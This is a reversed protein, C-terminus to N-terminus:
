QFFSHVVKRRQRQGESEACEAHASPYCLVCRVSHRVGCFTDFDHVGILDERLAASGIGGTSCVVRETSRCYSRWHAMSSETEPSMMQSQVDGQDAPLACERGTKGTRLRRDVLEFALRHTGKTALRVLSKGEQTGEILALALLGNQAELAVVKHETWTTVSLQDLRLSDSAGLQGFFLALHQQVEGAFPRPDHLLKRSLSISPSSFPCRRFTTRM